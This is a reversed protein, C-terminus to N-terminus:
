GLHQSPNKNHTTTQSDNVRLLQADQNRGHAVAKEPVPAQSNPGQSLGSWGIQGPSKM